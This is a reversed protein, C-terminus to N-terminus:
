QECAKAERRVVETETPGRVVGSRRPLLDLVAARRESRRTLGDPVAVHTDPARSPAIHGHYQPAVYPGFETVMPFSTVTIIRALVSRSEASISVQTRRRMAVQDFLWRDHLRTRAPM